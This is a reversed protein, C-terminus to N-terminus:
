VIWEFCVRFDYCDLGILKPSNHIWRGSELIGANGCGSIVSLVTVFDPKEGTTEMARFLALVEVLEGKEAYGGIMATWSVSSRHCM